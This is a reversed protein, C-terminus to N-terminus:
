QEGGPNAVVWAVAARRSAFDKGAATLVTGHGTCGSGARWKVGGRSGLHWGVVGLVDDPSAPPEKSATVYFAVPGRDDYHWIRPGPHLWAGLVREPRSAYGVQSAHTCEFSTGGETTEFAVVGCLRCACRIITRRPEGDLGDWTFRTTEWVDTGRRSCGEEHGAVPRYGFYLDSIGM